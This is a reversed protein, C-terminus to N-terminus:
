TEGHCWVPPPYSTAETALQSHLSYKVRPQLPLRHQDRHKTQFLKATRTYIMGDSFFDGAVPFTHQHCKLSPSLSFRHLSLAHQLSVVPRNSATTTPRSCWTRVGRCTQCGSGSRGRGTPGAHSPAVTIGWLSIASLASTNARGTCKRVEWTMTLGNPPPPSSLSQFRNTAEIPFFASQHFSPDFQM